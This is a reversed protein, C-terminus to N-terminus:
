STQRARHRSPLKCTSLAPPLRRRRLSACCRRALLHFLFVPISGADLERLLDIYTEEAGRQQDM